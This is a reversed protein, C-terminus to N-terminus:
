VSLEIKSYMPPTSRICCFLTFIHYLAYVCGKDLQKKFLLLFILGLLLFSILTLRKGKQKRKGKGKVYTSSWIEYEM